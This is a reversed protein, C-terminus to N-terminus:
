RRKLVDIMDTQSPQPIVDGSPDLPVERWTRLGILDRVSWTVAGLALHLWYDILRNVVTVSVAVSAPADLLRLCTFLTLEVIGAGSPTLPFASALLPISTLFLGEVWGAQLDFAWALSVIWLTELGWIVVTLGVIPGLQGPGPWMGVHMALLIDHVRKPLWAPVVNRCLWCVVM